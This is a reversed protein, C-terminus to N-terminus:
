EHWGDSYKYQVRYRLKGHYIQVLSEGDGKHQKHTYGRWWLPDLREVFQRVVWQGLMRKNM